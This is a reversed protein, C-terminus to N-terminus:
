TQELWFLYDHKLLLRLLKHATSTPLTSCKCREWIPITFSVADSMIIFKSPGALPVSEVLGVPVCSVAPTSRINIDIGRLRDSGATSRDLCGDPMTGMKCYSM